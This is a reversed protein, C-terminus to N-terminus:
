YFLIKSKSGPVQCFYHSAQEYSRIPDQGIQKQCDAINEYCQGAESWMKSRIYLQAAREYLDIADEYKENKSQCLFMCGGSQKLRKEAKDFYNYAESDM